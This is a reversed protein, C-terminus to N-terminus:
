ELHELPDDKRVEELKLHSNAKAPKHNEDNEVRGKAISKTDTRM